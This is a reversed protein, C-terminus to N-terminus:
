RGELHRKIEGLPDADASKLFRLMLQQLPLTLPNGTVEMRLDVRTGESHRSLAYHYYCDMGMARSRASYSRDGEFASIEIRATAEKGGVVRTEDWVTGLGVPGDTLKNVGIIGATFEAANEIDTLAEFVEAPPAAM